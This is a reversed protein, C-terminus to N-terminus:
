YRDLVPDIANALRGMTAVLWEWLTPWTDRDEVNVDNSYNTNIVSARKGDQRHWLLEAGFAAEIEHRQEHLWDYLESTTTDDGNDIYAQATLTSPRVRAVYTVGTAASKFQMWNQRQPKKTGRWRPEVDHLRPLFGAWFQAYTAKRGTDAADRPRQLQPRTSKTSVGSSAAPVANSPKGQLVAATAEPSPSLGTRAHVRRAFLDVLEHDPEDLMRRWIKPMETNLREAEQLKSLAEKARREAEGSNLNTKGVYTELDDAVQQPPSSSLRLEAFRRNAAPGPERPLYLWWELGNTLICIDVGEHFAYGMLQDVHKSLDEKPSKAEILCVLRHGQGTKMLAIDARGKQGAGSGPGVPHEWLVEGTDRHDHVDWGLGTLIPLLVRIKAAEENAPPRPMASIREVTERLGM